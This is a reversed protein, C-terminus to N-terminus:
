LTERFRVVRCQCVRKASAGIQGTESRVESYWDQTSQNLQGAGQRSLSKQYANLHEKGANAYLCEIPYDELTTTGDSPRM